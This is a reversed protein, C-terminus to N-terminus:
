GCVSAKAKRQVADTMPVCRLALQRNISDRHEILEQMSQWEERRYLFLRLYGFPADEGQIHKNCRISHNEDPILASFISILHIM